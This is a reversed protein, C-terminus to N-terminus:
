AGNFFRVLSDIGHLTEENEIAPQNNTNHYCVAPHINNANMQHLLICATRYPQDSKGDGGGVIIVAGKKEKEIPKENRFSRSCYFTQL